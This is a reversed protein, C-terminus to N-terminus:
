TTTTTLMTTGFGPFTERQLLQRLHFSVEVVVHDDCDRQFEGSNSGFNRDSSCLTRTTEGPDLMRDMTSAADAVDASNATTFLSASMTGAPLCSGPAYHINPHDTTIPQLLVLYKLDRKITVPQVHRRWLLRRFLRFEFKQM